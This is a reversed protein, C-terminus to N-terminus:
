IENQVGGKEGTLSVILNNIDDEFTEDDEFYVLDHIDVNTKLEHNTVHIQYAGHQEKLKETLEPSVGHLILLFKTFVKEGDKTKLVKVEDSDQEFREILEGYYREEHKFYRNVLDIQERQYSYFNENKEGDWGYDTATEPIKNRCNGAWRWCSKTVIEDFKNKSSPSGTLIILAKNM